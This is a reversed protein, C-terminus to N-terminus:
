GITDSLPREWALREAANPPVMALHRKGGVLTDSTEVLLRAAASLGGLGDEGIGVVALWRKMATSRHRLCQRRRRGVRQRRAARWRAGEPWSRAARGFSRRSYRSIEQRM